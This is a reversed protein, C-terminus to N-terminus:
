WLDGSKDSDKEVQNKADPIRIGRHGCRKLILCEGMPLTRCGAWVETFLRKLCWEEFWATPSHWRNTGPGVTECFVRM